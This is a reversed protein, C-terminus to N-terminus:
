IQCLEKPVCVKKQLLDVLHMRQLRVFCKKLKYTKITAENDLNASGIEDASTMLPPQVALLAEEESMGDELLGIRAKTQCRPTHKRQYKKSIFTQSSLKIVYLNYSM